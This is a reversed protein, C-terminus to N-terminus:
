HGFAVWTSDGNVGNILQFSNANFSLVTTTANQGFSTPVVNFCATPFARPFPVTAGPSGAQGQSIGWQIIIGTPLQAWGNQAASATGKAGAILANVQTQNFYNAPLFAATVYGSLLSNVQAATYFNGNLYSLTAYNAITSNLTALTTYNALQQQVQSITWYNGLIGNVQAATYYNAITAAFTANTVYNTLLQSLGVTTTYASLATALQAQTVFGGLQGTLAYGALGGWFAPSSSPANGTNSSQLSQYVINNNGRVIDNASYTEAPDWDVIGRRSFYRIGNMCYNLVWNFYQRAPPVASLKWGAAVFGTTQTDPDVIDTTLVASDAWAPRVQPKVISM